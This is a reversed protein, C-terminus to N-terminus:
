APLLRAAERDALVTLVGKLPRVLRAPAADPPGEDSLAARLAEAKAAGSVLLLIAGAHRFVPPTLTIREAPAAPARVAAALRTTERLAPDGPFLSAVHGDAGLGLLVLDFRPWGGPPLPFVGRLAAEYAEAAAAAPLPPPPVPHVQSEPIPVRALLERRAMTENRDPDGGPLHREDGWLVHVRDWPVRARFVAGPGAVATLLSYAAAPTTGGSLAVVFRGRLRAAEIALRTFEGAAARALEEPDRLVRVVPRM